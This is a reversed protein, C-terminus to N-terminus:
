PVMEQELGMDMRPFQTLSDAAESLPPDQGIGGLGDVAQPTIRQIPMCNLSQQGELM